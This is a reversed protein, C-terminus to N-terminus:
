FTVNYNDISDVSLIKFSKIKYAERYDDTDYKFSLIFDVYSIFTYLFVNDKKNKM